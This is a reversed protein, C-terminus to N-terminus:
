RPPLMEAFRIEYVPKLFIENKACEVVENPLQGLLDLKHSMCYAFVCSFENLPNLLYSLVDENPECRNLRDFMNEFLISTRIYEIDPKGQSIYKDLLHFILRPSQVIDPYTVMFAWDLFPRPDVDCHICLAALKEYDKERGKGRMVAHYAKIGATTALKKAFLTKVYETENVDCGSHGM